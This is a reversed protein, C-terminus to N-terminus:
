LKDGYEYEVIVPEEEPFRLNKMVAKEPLGDSDYEYLIEYEPPISSLIMNSYSSYVPNNIQKIDPCYTFVHGTPIALGHSAHPNLKTDYRFINETMAFESEYGVVRKVKEMTNGRSDYKYSINYLVEGEGSYEIGKYIRGDKYKFETKRESSDHPTIYQEKHETLLGESNYSYSTSYYNYTTTYNASRKEELQGTYNYKYSEIFPEGEEFINKVEIIRNLSDYKFEAKFEYDSQTRIVSILLKDTEIYDYVFDDKECSTIFILCAILL